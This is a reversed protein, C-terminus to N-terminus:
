LLTDHEERHCNACLVICKDLEKKVKNNLARGMSALGAEKETPDLHHFDLAVINNNYGCKSCCNTGLYNLCEQKFERAKLAKRKNDCSKCYASPKNNRTKRLSFDGLPKTCDCKSCYSHGVPVQKYYKSCLNYKKMWYRISGLSKNELSAIKRTSYNNDLYEKLKNKDM